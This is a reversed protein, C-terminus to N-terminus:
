LRRVPRCGSFYDNTEEYSYKPNARPVSLARENAWEPQICFGIAVHEEAVMKRVPISAHEPLHCM